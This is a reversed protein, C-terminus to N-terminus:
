HNTTAVLSDLCFRRLLEQVGRDLAARERSARRARHDMLTAPTHQLWLVDLSAEDFGALLLHGTTCDAVITVPVDALKRRINEPPPMSCLRM